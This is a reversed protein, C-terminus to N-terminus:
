AGDPVGITISDGAFYLRGCQRGVIVRGPLPLPGQGHWDTVLRDVEAVHAATLDGPPAGADRAAALLVRTRIARPLGLLREAAWGTADLEQRAAVSQADLADADDRALQATRALAAGVGPGLEAELMPLVTARVRARLHATDANHPDAWAELGTEALAAHVQLRPIQLLPRRLIGRVPAMGALSRTGSGRALGLLVTEAQDDQTHALLVAAANLRAAEDILVRYRAARAAGEPGGASAVDARLVVVPALGLGRCQQAARAAVAGSDAQLGHDVILAGAPRGSAAAAAALAM